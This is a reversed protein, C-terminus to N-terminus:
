RKVTRKRQLTSVLKSVSMTNVIHRKSLWGRRATGIGYTMYKMEVAPNHTDTGIAILVGAEAAKRATTSDLDLRMPHANIEIATGTRAAAEIVADMNIEFADRTGILRGTPHALIHASPHELARIVRETMTDRRMKFNSHVAVIVIDCRALVTDSLDLSGDPLIDVETGKLLRCGKKRKNIRDIEDIQKLLRKETLGNAIHLSKSHDSIIVYRYGMKKGATAIEELSAVGDSWNSHFHLDGRIDELSVLHPLKGEKAAEIEGADERIEPPIFPLGFVEYVEEESAGAIRREKGSKTKKFVGYENLKLGRQIAMERLRINHEKSGTFYSLAAGYSEEEVVRLDVQIKDKTIVSGKTKGEALIRDVEELHTFRGIVKKPASSTVLIDIDGVTERWRRLSGAPSIRNVEPMEKLISIISQALPYAEGIQTRGMGRELFEIGKLINEETREKMKPLGQIRHELAARKLDELTNVQLEEYLLVATKPGIGQVRLMDLLVPPTDERLENLFSIGGTEVYEVIKAELDKGIGPIEGLTGDSAMEEVDRSAGELNQAARRYANIRFRNANKLELIDAIENLLSTIERNKM